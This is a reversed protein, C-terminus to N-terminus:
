QVRSLQSAAWLMYASYGPEHAFPPRDFLRMSDIDDNCLLSAVDEVSQNPLLWFVSDHFNLDEYFQVYANPGVLMSHIELNWNDEGIRLYPFDAPGSLRLGHGEFEAKDWVEIWCGNSKGIWLKGMCVEKSPASGAVM